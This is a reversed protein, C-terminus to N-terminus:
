ATVPEPKRLGTVLEPKQRPELALLLLWAPEWLLMPIPMGISIFQVAAVGVLLWLRMPLSPDARLVIWAALLLIAIDYEHLYSASGITGVIGFAFVLDLRDRRYWALGIAALGFGIEVATTVANHGFLSSYTLPGTTPNARALEISQIWANVGHSGLSALSVAGLVASTAAFAIIPRWRGSVLLAVPVLWADQPKACMALALVVGAAIWHERDLLWWTVGLLVLTEVVWQALWFQYHVPWLALGVLILTVKTFRTGRCVLWAVAVFAGVNLLTWVLYAAPTSMWTLPVVAWASPPPALYIHGLDISAARELDLDYIHSWGHTLGIRAAVVWSRIDEATPDTTFHDIWRQVGFVVTILATLASASMWLSPLRTTSRERM